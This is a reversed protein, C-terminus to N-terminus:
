KAGGFDLLGQPLRSIATEIYEAEREFGIFEVHEERAAIATTGSGMFPDLVTGGPPTVMRVLWRMLAVPKVTPHRNGEGREAKSAKACYFFRAASKDGEIRPAVFPRPGYDGYCATGAKPAFEPGVARQQGPAQPFASLVEDSGDHILNAPWRGKDNSRASDNGFDGYVGGVANSGPHTWPEGEVRCGDVNLAGTGHEVVNAAVTGALPKRAM